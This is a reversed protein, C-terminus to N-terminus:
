GQNPSIDQVQPEGTKLRALAAMKQKIKATLEEDSMSERKVAVRETFLAVETIKGTLELAKLRVKPNPDTTAELLKAVTYGRIQAAQEVFNWDHATLMGVLHRVSAPSNIMSLQQKKDEVSASPDTYTAFTDRAKQRELEEASYDAIGAMELLRTTKIKAELLEEPGVGAVPLLDQMKPAYTTVSGLPDDQLLHALDVMEAITCRRLREGM